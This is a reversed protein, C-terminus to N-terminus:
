DEITFNMLEVPVKYSTRLIANAGPIMQFNGGGLDEIAMAHFGQGNLTGSTDLGVCDNGCPTQAATSGATPNWVGALYSPAATIVAPTVFTFINFSGAQLNAVNVSAVPMANTQATNLPGFVTLFANGTGTLSSNVAALFVSFATVTLPLSVFPIGNASQYRNGFAFNDAIAPIDPVGTFTGTDYVLTRFVTHNGSEPQLTRRVLTGQFGTGARSSEREKMAQSFDRRQDQTMDLWNPPNINRGVHQAWAPLNTALIIAGMVTFLISRM